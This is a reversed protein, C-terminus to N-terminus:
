EWNKLYIHGKMKINDFIKANTESLYFLNDRM